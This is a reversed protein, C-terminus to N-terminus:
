DAYGLSRLRELEEANEPAAQEAAAPECQSYLRQAESRLRAAIDPHQDAVNTQEGPDAALDYLELTKPEVNWIGKYRGLRMAINIDGRSEKWPRYYKMVNLRMSAVFVEDDSSAGAEAEDKILPMLSHGRADQAVSPEDLYEALTPVIDLLSVPKAVRRGAWEDNPFKIILPVRLLEEYVSQDHVWGGHENMEEGHDAILIFITHDWLRSSRMMHIVSEVREDAIRVAADYLDSWADHMSTLEALAARQETTNDTEGLTRDNRFDIRTLSRYKKYAEEMRDRTAQDIDPFGDTHPPAYFYPNHPETNHLYIFTPNRLKLHNLAVALKDGDNRPVYKFWDFGRDIGYRAGAYENSVMGIATYGVRRLREALPSLEGPMKTKSSIAGHECPWTSTMLSVVSPLTWPAPAYAQEFLVGENALADIAPSTRYRTYGYAGLRDARLTDILFICISIRPRDARPRPRDPWRSTPQRSAAQEDAEATTNATQSTAPGADADSTDKPPEAVREAAPAAPQTDASPRATSTSPRAGRPAHRMAWGAAAAVLAAAVLSTWLTNRSRDSMPM